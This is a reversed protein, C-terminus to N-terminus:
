ETGEKERTARALHTREKSSRAVKRQRAKRQIQFLYQPRVWDAHYLTLFFTIASSRREVFLVPGSSSPAFYLLPGIHQIHHGLAHFKM